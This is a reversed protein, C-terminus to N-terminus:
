EATSLVARIRGKAAVLMREAEAREVGRKEMVIATRVDRGAKDLLEAARRPTTGAAREIIRIAREELKRNSPQVNVMLNGYVHGLRIMVATSIMNLVLKTATGARLRTSGALVEAGTRPEIPFAVARSVESDPNCSIGCTLAGLEKAKAIAGLVYPTRGSAAIGVLADGPGFGAALLDLAGAERDDESAETARSLAANGGAIIGQVLTAPVGFTPPIESADLVGLRGSTGAGIYFLRGGRELVVAIADVARAIRPIEAAVAAPVTADAQNMLLLLGDTPL